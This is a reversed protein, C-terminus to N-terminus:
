EGRAKSLLDIVEKEISHDNISDGDALLELMEYMAPAQSILDVNAILEEGDGWMSCIGMGNADAPGQPTVMWPSKSFKTDTMNSMALVRMM